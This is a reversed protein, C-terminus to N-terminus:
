ESHPVPKGTELYSQLSDLAGSWGEIMDEREAASRMKEHSLRVATRGDGLDELTIDVRSGPAHDPNDWTFRLRNPRDVVLFEGRDGDGNAYAGGEVVDARAESTFWRSLHEPDALADFAAEPATQITRQFSAVFTGDAREGVQRGGREREYQVTVMQAWWGSLGQEAALYKATAKHGKELAEWDDLITFWQPWSKGTKAQVAEDSINTDGPAM